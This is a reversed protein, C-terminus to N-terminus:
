PGPSTPPRGGAGQRRPRGAGGRRRPRRRALRRAQPRAAPQRGPRRLLRADADAHRQVAPLRAQRRPPAAVRRRRRLGVRHRQAPGGFRHQRRRRGVAAHRPRVVAHQGDPRLLLRPRPATRARGADPWVPRPVYGVEYGDQQWLDGTRSEVLRDGFAQKLVKRADANDLGYRNLNEVTVQTARQRNDTLVFPAVRVAVEDSTTAPETPLASSAPSASATPGGAPRISIILPDYEVTLRVRVGAGARIGEVGFQFWGDGALANVDYENAAAPNAVFRITDGLGPGIVAWTARSPWWTRGARRPRSSCGCGTPRRRRRSGRRTAPPGCCRSRSATTTPPTPTASSGCGCSASTPWTPPTTSSTTRPPRSATGCGAPGTTRRAAPRRTTGTSTRCCSRGAAPRAPRGLAKARTTPRRSRGTGTRTSWCTPRVPFRPSRRPGAHRRQVFPATRATRHAYPSRSGTTLVTVSLTFRCVFTSSAPPVPALPRRVRPPLPACVQRGAVRCPRRPRECCLALGSRRDHFIRRFAAGSPRTLSGRADAVPESTMRPARSRDPSLRVGRRHRVPAADPKALGNRSCRAETSWRDSM